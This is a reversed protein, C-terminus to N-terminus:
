RAGIGTLADNMRTASGAAPKHAEALQAQRYAKAEGITDFPEKSDTKGPAGARPFRCGFATPKGERVVYYIAVENEVKQGDKVAEPPESTAPVSEPASALATVARKVRGGSAYEELRDRLKTNERKLERASAELGAFQAQM